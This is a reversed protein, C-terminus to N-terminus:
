QRSMWEWYIKLKKIGLLNIPYPSTLTDAVPYYDLNVDFGLLRFCTSETHDLSYFVRGSTSHYFLTMTGNHDNISLTFTHGNATFATEMATFLSQYDYNGVQITISYQTFITHHQITYYLKNNSYNVIYFSVPFVASEIKGELYEVDENASIINPFSFSLNSMFSGNHFITADLSNINILKRDTSLSSM